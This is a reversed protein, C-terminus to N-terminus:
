PILELFIPVLKLILEIIKHKMEEINKKRRDDKEFISCYLIINYVIYHM